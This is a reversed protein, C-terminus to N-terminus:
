MQPFFLQDTSWSSSKKKKVLIVGQRILALNKKNGEPLIESHRAMM